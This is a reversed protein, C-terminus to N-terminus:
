NMLNCLWFASGEKAKNLPTEGWYDPLYPNAVSEVDGKRIALHLDGDPYPEANVAVLIMVLICATLVRYPVKLKM